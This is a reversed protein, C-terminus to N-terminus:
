SGSLDISDITLPDDDVQVSNSYVEESGRYIKLTYNGEEVSDFVFSGDPNIKACAVVDDVAHVTGQVHSYLRDQISYIGAEPVVVSRVNGPATALPTFEPIEEAQLEHSCGDRNEIRLANGSKVVMTRSRFDGGEIQYTCGAPEDVQAGTLVVSLERSPDPRSLTLISSGM